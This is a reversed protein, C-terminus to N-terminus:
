RGDVKAGPVLTLRFTWGIFLPAGTAAKTPALNASPLVIPFHSPSYGPGSKLCHGPVESLALRRRRCFPQVKELLQQHAARQAKIISTRLFARQDEIFDRDQPTKEHMAEEYRPINIRGELRPM